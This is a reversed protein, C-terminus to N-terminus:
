DVGSFHVVLSNEDVSKESSRCVVSNEDVLTNEVVGSIQDLGSTKDAIFKHRCFIYKHIYM